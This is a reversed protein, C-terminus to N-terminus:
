CNRFRASGFPWEEPKECLRAKVPNNEIYALVKSYHRVNRIYRDFYEKQWFRGKRSLTKNAENSTYSKLSHMIEALGRGACPTCLIHVHNPMITWAALRYKTKEHYLLAGEVIAAVRLDRLYCNGHSQDLYAEVLRRMMSDVAAPKENKLEERWRLLV